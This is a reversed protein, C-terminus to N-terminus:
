TNQINGIKITGQEEYMKKKVILVSVMCSFLMPIGPVM